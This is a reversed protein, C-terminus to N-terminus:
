LLERVDEYARCVAAAGAGSQKRYSSNVVQLGTERGCLGGRATKAWDPDDIFKRIKENVEHKSWEPYDDSQRNPDCVAVVRFDKHQLAPMLQRLGQTGCGIYALTIKESPPVHKAGGLVERPIITVAGAATSTAALFRRRSIPNQPAKDLTQSNQPTKM